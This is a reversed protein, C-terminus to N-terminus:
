LVIGHRDAVHARFADLGRAAIFLRAEEVKADILMTYWFGQLAHWVFGPRGDLFGLRLVYRYGFLLVARLYLPMRRFVAYQLFRKWARSADADAGTGNAKGLGREMAIFDAMKRTAYRNHKETWWTIDRLNHDCFDKSFVIAEGGNLVIHEDMRLQPVHAQGNRWLRLLVTPYYGGFRIWKDRFILKRRLRVGAVTSPLSPLRARIEAILAPELYEDADLRLVWNTRIDLTDLAWQLQDAQHTFARQAVEAGLARAVGVTGDTSFSDVVVIREVLSSLSKLCRELHIEEDFTLIIATISLATERPPPETIPGM